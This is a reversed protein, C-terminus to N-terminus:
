KQGKLWFHLDVVRMVPYTHGDPTQMKKQCEIINSQNEVCFAIVQNLSNRGFRKTIKADLGAVFFRDYAPVCGLACMMIKTILTPTVSNPRGSTSITDRQGNYFQKLEEYLKIVEDLTEENSNEDNRDLWADVPNKRYNKMIRVAGIHVKYNSLRLLSNGRYMGYSGMCAALHLSLLQLDDSKCFADYCDDWGQYAHINTETNEKHFEIIEQVNIM